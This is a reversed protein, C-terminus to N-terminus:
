IIGAKAMARRAPFPPDPQDEHWAPTGALLSPTINFDYRKGAVYSSFQASYQCLAIGSFGSGMLLLCLVPKVCWKGVQIAPRM